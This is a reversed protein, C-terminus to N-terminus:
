KGKTRIITLPTSVPYLHTILLPLRGLKSTSFSLPFGPVFRPLVLHNNVGELSFLATLTNHTPLHVRNIGRFMFLSYVNKVWDFTLPNLM